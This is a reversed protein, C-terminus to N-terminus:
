RKLCHFRILSFSVSAFTHLMLMQTVSKPPLLKWLRKSFSGERCEITEQKEREGMTVHNFKKTPAYLTLRTALCAIRREMWEVDMRALPQEPEPMMLMVDRNGQIAKTRSMEEVEQLKEKAWCRVGNGKAPVCRDYSASLVLSTVCAVVCIMELARHIM